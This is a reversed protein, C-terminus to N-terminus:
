LRHHSLENRLEKEREEAIIPIRREAEKADEKLKRGLEEMRAHDSSSKLRTISQLGYIEVLLYKKSVEVFFGSIWKVVCAVKMAQKSDEIIPKRTNYSMKQCDNLEENTAKVKEGDRIVKSMNQELHVNILDHFTQFMIKLQSWFEKVKSFETISTELADKNKNLNSIKQNSKELDKSAIEKLEQLTQKAKKLEEYEEKKKKEKEEPKDKFAKTFPGGGTGLGLTSTLVEPPLMTTQKVSELTTNIALHTFSDLLTVLTDIWPSPCAAAADEYEKKAGDCMEVQEKESEMMQETKKNTEDIEKRTSEVEQYIKGESGALIEDLERVTKDVKEFEETIPAAIKVCDQCITQANRLYHLALKWEHRTGSETFELARKVDTVIHESKVSILNMSRHAAEFAECVDNSIQVICARFSDPHRIYKLKANPCHEKLSFDDKASTHLLHGLTATVISPARTLVQCASSISSLKLDESYPM